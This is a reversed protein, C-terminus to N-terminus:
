INENKNLYFKFGEISLDLFNAIRNQIKNDLFSDLSNIRDNSNLSNFM